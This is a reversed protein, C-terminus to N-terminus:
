NNYNVQWLYLGHGPATRGAHRRDKKELIRSIEEPKIKHQGIDLLTGVLIRVMNYLFGNGVFRFVLEEDTQLLELEYLTRVKDEIETKASCFSTFDHTGTLYPIAEQMAQLDISYPFHYAYSRSFVDRKKALFVRYRYEKSCVDFRAHFTEPVKEVLNVSIDSPLMTNLAAVWRDEPISLPTDFHLVQGKAHVTADTRGSAYVRVNTGKHIKELVAEIEKQVTRKEPQIQYGYFYTGDYSITCKIREM